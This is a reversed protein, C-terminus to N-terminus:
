LDSNQVPHQDSESTAEPAAAEIWSWWMYTNMHVDITPPPNVLVCLGVVVSVAQAPRHLEPQRDVALRHHSKYRACRSRM